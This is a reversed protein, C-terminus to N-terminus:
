VTHIYIFSIQKFIVIMNLALNNKVGYAHEYQLAIKESFDNLVSMVSLVM